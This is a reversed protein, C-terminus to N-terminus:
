EHLGYGGRGQHSLIAWAVTGTDGSVCSGQALVLGTHESQEAEMLEGAQRDQEQDM